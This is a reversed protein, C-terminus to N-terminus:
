KKYVKLILQSFEDQAQRDDGLFSRIILEDVPSHIARAFWARESSSRWTMVVYDRLQEREADSFYAWNDLILRLRTPWIQPIRSATEISMFLPRVVDRSTGDLVQRIVALRLWDIGRAPAAALGKELDAKARGMWLARQAPTAELEMTLAAGGALESRQLYRGAVPDAAVAGNLAAIGAEVDALQIPGMTRLEFVVADAKQARWAGSTVPLGQWVLAAGGVGM